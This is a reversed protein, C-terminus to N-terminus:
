AAGEKPADPQRAAAVPRSTGSTLVFAVTLLALGIAQLALRTFDLQVSYRRDVEVNFRIPNADREARAARKAEVERELNREEHDIYDGKRWTLGGPQAERAFIDKQSLGQHLLEKFRIFRAYKEPSLSLREEEDCSAAIPPVAYPLYAPPPEWISAYGGPVVGLRAKEGSFQWPPFVTMAALGVLGLWLWGKQTQNMM